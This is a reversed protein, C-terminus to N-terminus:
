VANDFDTYLYINLINIFKSKPRTRKKIIFYLVIKQTILYNELYNIKFILILLVSFLELMIFWKLISRFIKIWLVFGLAFQKVFSSFLMKQLRHFRKLYVTPLEHSYPDLLGAYKKPKIKTTM